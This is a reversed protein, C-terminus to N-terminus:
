QTQKSQVLVMIYVTGMVKSLCLSMDTMQKTHFKIRQISYMNVSESFDKTIKKKKSAYGKLVLPSM